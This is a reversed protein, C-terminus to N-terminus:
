RTEGEETVAPGETTERRSRAGLLLTAGVLLLAGAGFWELQDGAITLEGALGLGAAALFVAGFVLSLVDIPHRRM